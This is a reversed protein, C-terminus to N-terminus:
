FNFFFRHKAQQSLAELVGVSSSKEGEFLFSPTMKLAPNNPSQFVIYDFYPAFHLDCYLINTMIILLSKGPPESPLAGTQLSPSRPEIGPDPLDGPSPFLLGSQYQQRSFGMSLPAQYAVTRPTAFLRVRSLLKVKVKVIILSLRNSRLLLSCTVNVSIATSVRHIVLTVPVSRLLKLSMSFCDIPIPSGFCFVFTWLSLNGWRM